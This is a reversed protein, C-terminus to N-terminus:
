ASRRWECYAQEGFGLEVEGELAEEGRAHFEAHEIGRLAHREGGNRVRFDIGGFVGSESKAGGAFGHHEEFVVAVEEREIGCFMLRDGDDAREGGRADAEFAVVVGDRQVGDEGDVADLGLESVVVHEIRLTRGVDVAAFEGNRARHEAGGGVGGDFAELALVEGMRREIAGGGHDADVLLDVEVPGEGVWYLRTVSGRLGKCDAPDASDTSRRGFGEVELEAKGDAIGALVLEFEGDVEVAFWELGGRRRGRRGRLQRGGAAVVSGDLVESNGEGVGAGM